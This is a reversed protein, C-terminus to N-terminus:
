KTLVFKRSYSSKLNEFDYVIAFVVLIWLFRSLKEGLTYGKLIKLSQRGCIDTKWFFSSLQCIPLSKRPLTIWPQWLWKTFSQLNVTLSKSVFPQTSKCFIVIHWTKVNFNGSLSRLKLAANFVSLVRELSRQRRAIM